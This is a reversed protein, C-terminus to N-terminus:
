SEKLRQLSQGLKKIDSSYVEARKLVNTLTRMSEKSDLFKGISGAVPGIGPLSEVFRGPVGGLPNNINDYSHKIIGVKNVLDLGFRGVKNVAGALFNGIKGFVM